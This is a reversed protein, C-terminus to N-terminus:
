AGPSALRAGAVEVEVKFRQTGLHAPEPATPEGSTIEAAIRATESWPVIVREWYDIHDYGLWRGFTTPETSVNSYFDSTAGNAAPTARFGHPEVTSWQFRAAPLPEVELATGGLRVTTIGEPALVSTRKGRHGIVIAALEAPEDVRAETPADTWPATARARGVVVVREPVFVPRASAVSSAACVLLGIRRM